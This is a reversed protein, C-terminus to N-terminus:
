LTAKGPIYKFINLLSKRGKSYDKKADEESKRAKIELYNEMYDQNKKLNETLSLKPYNEKALLYKYGNSMEKFSTIKGLIKYCMLEFNTSWKGLRGIISHQYAHEAEHSAIGVSHYTRYIKKFVLAGNIYDFHAAANEAVEKKSIKIKIGVDGLGKKDIFHQGLAFQKNKGLLFRYAIYKDDNQFSINESASINLIEPRNNIIKINACLQKKDSNTEKGFNEPYETMSANVTTVDNSYFYENKNIHLKVSDKKRKGRKKKYIYFEEEKVDQWKENFLEKTKVIKTTEDAKVDINPAEKLYEYTKIQPNINSGSIFRQVLNKSDYFSIIEKRENRNDRKEILVRTYYKVDEPPVYDKKQFNNIPLKKTKELLKYKTIVPTKKIFFNFM